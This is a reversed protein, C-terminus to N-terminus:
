MVSVISAGWKTISYDGTMLFRPHFQVLLLPRPTHVYRSRLCMPRGKKKTNKVVQTM